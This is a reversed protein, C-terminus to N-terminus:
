NKLWNSPWVHEIPTLDRHWSVFFNLCLEGSGVVSVHPSSEVVDRVVLIM